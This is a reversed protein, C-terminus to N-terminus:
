ADVRYRARGEAKAEYMAADARQLLAEFTDEPGPSLAIGISASIRVTTGAVVIPQEVSRLIRAAVMELDELRAVGPMLVGFEDGGLRCATDGTRIAVRLRAAVEVLVADGAHHGLADNVNKFHDLDVFMMAVEPRRRRRDSDVTTTFLDEFSRVNALGTLLDHGAQHRIQDLLKANDFATAAIRSIGNLLYRGAEPASQDLVTHDVSVAVLGLLSGRAVIPMVVGTDFGVARRVESVGATDALEGLTLPAPERTMADLVAPEIRLVELGTVARTTITAVDDGRGSRGRCVLLADDPEWVFVCGEDCGAVSPVANALRAAVGGVTGVESLATALDFLAGITRARERAEGFAAATDLVAAAHGAYAQFLRREEALFRRGEPYFAAIRGYHHSSSAVDVILRCGNHDDPDDVLVEAACEEVEHEDFRVSHIRLRSERPLRVALLFQPARIAVDARRAIIRLSEDVDGVSALESAMEELAEFRTTLAAVQATLFHVRSNADTATEPDWTVQYLCRGDGRAQCETETVTGVTMGFITPMAALVGATYDCFLRDRRILMSTRASVVAYREDAELCEMVTISSQKSAIDAIIRLVESPREFSRLMEVVETSAFRTFLEEGARRGIGPDNMVRAAAAFLQRTQEYSSWEGPDELEVLTRGDGAGRLVEAVADDGNLRRVYSLLVATMSNNLERPTAHGSGMIPNDVGRGGEKLSVVVAIWLAPV